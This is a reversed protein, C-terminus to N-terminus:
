LLNNRTSKEKKLNQSIALEITTRKEVSASMISLPKEETHNSM